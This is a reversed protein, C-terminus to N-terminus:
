KIQVRNTERLFIADGYQGLAVWKDWNEKLWKWSVGKISPGLCEKPFTVYKLGAKYGVMNILGFPQEESQNDFLLYAIADQIGSKPVWIVDGRTLEPTKFRKYEVNFLSITEEKLSAM